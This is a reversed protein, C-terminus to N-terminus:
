WVDTLTLDGAGDAYLDQARREAAHQDDYLETTRAGQGDTLLLARGSRAVHIGYEFSDDSMGDMYDLDLLAALYGPDDSRKAWREACTVHALLVAPAPNWPDPIEVPDGPPSMVLGAVAPRECFPCPTM